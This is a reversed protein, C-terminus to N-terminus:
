RVGNINELHSKGSDSCDSSAVDMNENSLLDNDPLFGLDQNFLISDLIDDGPNQWYDNSQFL